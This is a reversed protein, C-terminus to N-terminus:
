NRSRRSSSVSARAAARPLEYRVGLWIEDGDRYERREVFRLGAKEAVRISAANDASAHMRITEAGLTEFAYAVMARVAETGYGRGQFTPAITYGVKVVGPEGEVASLGVDGVFRGTTREEVSLQVWGGPQGPARGEMEQIEARVAAEDTREWGQFRHVEPDSRYASIAAADDPASRRLRLRETVLERFNPDTRVVAVPYRRSRRLVTGSAM